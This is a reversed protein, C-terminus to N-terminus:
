RLAKHSCYNSHLRFGFLCENQMELVYKKLYKRLYIFLYSSFHLFSFSFLLRVTNLFNLSFLWSLMCNWNSSSLLEPCRDALRLFFFTLKSRSIIKLIPFATVAFRIRNNQAFYFFFFLLVYERGMFRM